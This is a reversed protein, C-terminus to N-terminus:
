EAEKNVKKRMDNEQSGRQRSIRNEGQVFMNTKNQSKSKHM